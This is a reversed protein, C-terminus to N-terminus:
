SEGGLLAAALFPPYFAVFACDGLTHIAFSIKNYLPHLVYFEESIGLINEIYGATGLTVAEILLLFGLMRATASVTTVRYLAVALALCAAIAVVGMIGTTLELSIWM